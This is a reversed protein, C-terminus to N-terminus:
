LGLREYRFDCKSAGTPLAGSRTYKFGLQVGMKPYVVDDIECWPFSWAANGYEKAVEHAICYNINFALTDKTDEIVESEHFKEQVGANVSAKTYEKFCLFPDECAKLNMVPILFMNVTSKNAALIKETKEYIETIIGRAKEIGLLEDLVKMLAIVEFTLEFVERSVGKKEIKFWNHKRMQTKESRWLYFIKILGIFGAEKWIVGITPWTMQKEIKKHEPNSLSKVIGNGYNIMKEVDM